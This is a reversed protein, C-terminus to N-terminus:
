SHWFLENLQLLRVDDFFNASHFNYGSVNGTASKFSCVCLKFYVQTVQEFFGGRASINIKNLEEAQRIRFTRVQLRQLLTQQARSRLHWNLIAHSITKAANLFLPRRTFNHIPVSAHCLKRRRAFNTMALYYRIASQIKLAALNTRKRIFQWRCRFCIWAQQICITAKHARTHSLMIRMTRKATMQLQKQLCANQFATWGRRVALFKLASVHRRACFGRFARQVVASLRLLSTELLVEARAEAEDAIQMQTITAGRREHQHIQMERNLFKRFSSRVRWARQIRAAGQSRRSQYNYFRFLSRSIRLRWACQLCIVHRLVFSRAFRMRDMHMRWARQLTLCSGIKLRATKADCARRKIIIGSCFQQVVTRSRLFVTGLFRRTLEHRSYHSRVNCQLM